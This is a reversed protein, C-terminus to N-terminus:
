GDGDARIRQLLGRAIGGPGAARVAFGAADPELPLIKQSKYTSLSHLVDPGADCIAEQASVTDNDTGKIYCM